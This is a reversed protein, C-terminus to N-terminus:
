CVLIGIEFEILVSIYYAFEPLKLGFHLYLVLIHVSVYYAFQKLGFNIYLSIVHGVYLATNLYM